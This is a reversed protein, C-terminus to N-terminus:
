ATGAWTAAPQCNPEQVQFPAAWQDGTNAKTAGAAGPGHPRQAIGNQIISPHDVANADEFLAVPRQGHPERLLARGVAEFFDDTRQRRLIPRGNGAGHQVGVGLQHPLRVQQRRDVM